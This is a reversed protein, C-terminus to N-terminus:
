QILNEAIEFARYNPKEVKAETPTTKTTNEQQQERASIRLDIPQNKM